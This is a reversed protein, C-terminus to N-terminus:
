RLLLPALQAPPWSEPPGVDKLHVTQGDVQLDGTVRELRDGNPRVLIVNGQPLAEWHEDWSAGPVWWQLGDATPAVRASFDTIAFLRPAVRWDTPFRYTQDLVLPDAWSNTFIFTTPVTAPQEYILVTGDQLDSCCAAVQQWFGRQLQWSRMFDREITVYYGVALALYAGVLAAALRPRVNMLGWTVAAALVAMGFTAGLHVSTGRGVVANPPFHTFALGYGLVLMVLGAGGTELIDRWPSPRPRVRWLALAFVVGAVLALILTEVDWSPVVRLPQYLSAAVSRVPGLVLSGLLLPVISAVGGSSQTARVEGALLRALVVVVVIGGLVLVHRVLERV